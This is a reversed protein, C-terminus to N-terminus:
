SEYYGEYFLRVWAEFKLVYNTISNTSSFKREFIQEYTRWGEDSLARNRHYIPFVFGSKQLEFARSFLGSEYIAESSYSVGAEKLLSNFNYICNHVATETMCYSVRTRLLYPSANSMNFFIPEQAHKSLHKIVNPHVNRTTAAKLDYVSNFTESIDEKCVTPLSERKFGSWMLYLISIPTMYDKEDLGAKEVSTKLSAELSEFSDFYKDKSLTGKYYMRAM